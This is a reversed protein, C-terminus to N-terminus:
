VINVRLSDPPPKLLAVSYGHCRRRIVVAIVMVVLDLPACGPCRLSYYQYGSYQKVGTVSERSIYVFSVAQTKPM